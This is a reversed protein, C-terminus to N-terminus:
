ISCYMENNWVGGNKEINIYKEIKCGNKNRKVVKVTWNGERAHRVKTQKENSGIKDTKRGVERVNERDYWM